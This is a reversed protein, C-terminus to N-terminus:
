SKACYYKRWEQWYQGMMTKLRSAAQSSQRSPPFEDIATFSALVIRGILVMVGKM